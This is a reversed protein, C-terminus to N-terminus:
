QIKGIKQADSVLDRYAFGAPTRHQVNFWSLNLLAYAEDCYMAMFSPTVGQVDGWTGVVNITPTAIGLNVCHGGWSDPEGDGIPGCTPVDWPQKNDLQKKATLPLMLGVYVAGFLYNAYMVQTPKRPNISVFADLKNNFVGKKHWYNLFALMNLGSDVGGTLKFYTDIIKKDSVITEKRGANATWQQITHACSAVVCDGFNDNGAMSFLSVKKFWDSGEPPLPPLITTDIYSSLKLTRGDFKAPQKGLKMVM